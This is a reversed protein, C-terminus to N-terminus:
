VWTFSGTSQLSVSASLKDGDPSTEAFSAVMCEVDINGLTPIVIRFAKISKDGAATRLAVFTAESNFTLEITLDLSQTGQGGLLERFQASSKNTIDIIGNNLTLSHTNQGGIMVYVSGPLNNADMLVSVNTGNQADNTAM